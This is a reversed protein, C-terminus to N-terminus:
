KEYCACNPSTPSHNRNSRANFQVNYTVKTTGLLVQYYLTTSQLVSYYKTTRFLVIITNQIVSYYKTTYFLVKYCYYLTTNKLASYYKPDKYRQMVVEFWM